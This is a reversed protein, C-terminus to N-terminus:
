NNVRCNHISLILIDEAGAAALEDMIDSVKSQPVMSSVAVWNDDDLPSITPAKKGPTIKTAIALSTRLVNYNCLVFKQAAIVGEIRSKIKEILPNNRHKTSNCILVAQSKILTEIRILKAARMTEGSEVLDVIADALGLACAAEVSGGVYTVSTSLTGSFPKATLLQTEANSADGKELAQFYRKTVTEFSTVIRKGIM